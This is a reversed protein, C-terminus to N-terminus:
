KPLRVTFRAGGGPADDVTITGGHAEVIAKVMSLGLGLGRQSRSADGRYLRRFIAEREALPVGPGNDSVTVMVATAEDRTALTVRGGVPTYKLANDLLNNVAQGLRIADASLEAAAPQELAVQIRKEEAVERYLDAARETLTRVDIMDRNLKLAGAEAASIDLLTELLHLVRDSENVCDALAARAEAPDGADQMALEATGRLRTLPTRLDHALNDLTERLVRVHTANKDLLTNLQRVLVALEGTGGPGAVRASSDGTEIIRQATDSVARLPRTARWALLTGVAVSLILAAGGVAAFAGRLPLLLVARSDLLRGVQLQWGNTWQRTAITYDRLANQPLRLTQIERTVTLDGVPIQQIQTEIWDAPWKQYVASGDPRMLRVFFASANPSSNNDVRARLAAINGREFAESFEETQRILAARERTDLADALLWYLVGFLLAAGVAFVLAYQFALRLALSQRLRRLM